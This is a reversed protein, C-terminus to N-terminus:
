INYAYRLNYIKLLFFDKNVRLSSVTCQITHYINYYNPSPSVAFERGRRTMIERRCVGHYIICILTPWSTNNSDGCSLLLVIITYVIKFKIFYRFEDSDVSQNQRMHRIARHHFSVNACGHAYYLYSCLPHLNLAVRGTITDGFTNTHPTHSNIIEFIIIRMVGKQLYFVYSFPEREISAWLELTM